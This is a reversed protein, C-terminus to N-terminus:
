IINKNKDFLTKLLKFNEMESKKRFEITSLQNEIEYIGVSDGLRSKNKKITDPYTACALSYLGINIPNRKPRMVEGQDIRKLKDAEKMWCPRYEAFGAIVTDYNSHCLLEIVRDLLGVPRFPYTIELPVIIDPFYGITELERLSFDLVSEVRTRHSSLYEPRIIPAEIKNQKAIKLSEKSDSSIIIRDIYKCKKAAFITEEILQNDYDVESNRRLPIIACVEQNKPQTTSSVKPSDLQYEDIIKVINQLRGKNGQQHIGHHHFVSANPEYAIKFGSNIVQKAWIRDEINTVTENFNFKEWIDRRFMSNANHFFTDKSQVRHDLGFTILLDRKDEDSTSRLPIQRGYVAAITKDHLNSKLNTLWSEDSPICHASLVAIYKGSSARIGENIAHGPFYNDLNVIVINPIIQIAKNVTSDTSGNDVLIIEIDTEVQKKILNLCKGIWREENKARIIISIM